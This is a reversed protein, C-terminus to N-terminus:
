AADSGSEDAEHVREVHTWAKRHFILSVAAESVGFERALDRGKEGETRRTLIEAAQADTLKAHGRQEGRLQPVKIRGRRAADRMNDLQTGAYLHSPNVCRRNDCTHLVYLGAPVEGHTHAYMARHSTIPRHQLSTIGYGCENLRATWNWCGGEVVHVRSMFRAFQKDTM